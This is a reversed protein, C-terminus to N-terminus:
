IDLDMTVFMDVTGMIQGADTISRRILLQTGSILLTIISELHAPYVKTTARDIETM